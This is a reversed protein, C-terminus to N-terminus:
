YKRNKIINMKGQIAKSMDVECREALMWLVIAVDAFEKALEDSNDHIKEKRVQGLHILIESALEGNEEMLKTAGNLISEKQNLFNDRTMCRSNEWKIFENFEDFNFSNM